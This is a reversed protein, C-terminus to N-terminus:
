HPTRPDELLHELVPLPLDLFQTFLSLYPRPDDLSALRTLFAQIAPDDAWESASSALWNHLRDAPSDIEALLDASLLDT